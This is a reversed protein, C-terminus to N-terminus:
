QRASQILNAMSRSAIEGSLYQQIGEYEWDYKAPDIERVRSHALNRLEETWGLASALGAAGFVHIVGAYFRTYDALPRSLRHSAVAQMREMQSGSLQDLWLYAAATLVQM